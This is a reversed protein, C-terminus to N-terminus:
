AEADWRFLRPTGAADLTWVAPQGEWPRHVSLLPLAPTRFARFHCTEGHFVGDPTVIGAAWADLADMPNRRPPFAPNEAELGSLTTVGDPRMEGWLAAGDPESPVALTLNQLGLRLATDCLADRMLDVGVASAGLERAAALTTGSGCCLDAAIEGPLVCPSLLRRLLAVPKQTPWGTREPDRQQLHSVDTWVDGPAVLDDDYYRYEKGGVVMAAYSRGQEDVGRKMHNRAKQARRIGARLPEMRWAPTKGYLFITDHKRSFTRKARGGSEYAWIVENIFCDEGFLRDLLLRMHASMRWDIHVMAVGSDTLLERANLLLREAFALFVERSEFRDTFGELSLSTRGKAWDEEGFAHKRVYREGTLFPPDLYVAQVRGAYDALAPMPRSADAQLLLDRGEGFVAGACSIQRFM